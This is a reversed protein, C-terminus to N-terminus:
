PANDFEFAVLCIELTYLGRERSRSLVVSTCKYINCVM